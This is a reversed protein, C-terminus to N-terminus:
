NPFVIDKLSYVKLFKNDKWKNTIEIIIEADSKPEDHPNLQREKTVVDAVLKYLTKSISDCLRFYDDDSVNEDMVESIRDTIKAETDCVEVQYKRLAIEAARQAPMELNNWKIIVSVPVNYKESCQQPTLGFKIDECVNAQLEKTYRM